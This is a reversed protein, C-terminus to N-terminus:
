SIHFIDEFLDSLEKATKDGVGKRKRFYKYLTSCGSDKYDKIFDMVTYLKLQKKEFDYPIFKRYFCNYALTSIKDKNATLYDIVITDAQLGCDAIDLIQNEIRIHANVLEKDGVFFRLKNGHKYSSRIIRMINTTSTGYSKAIVTAPEGDCFYRFVVDKSREPLNEIFGLVSENFDKPKVFQMNMYEDNNEIFFQVYKEQWTMKYIFIPKRYEKEKYRPDGGHRLARGYCNKCLMNAYVPSSGCFWCVNSKKCRAM